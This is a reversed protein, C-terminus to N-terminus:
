DVNGAAIAMRDDRIISAPDIARALIAASTPDMRDFADLRDGIDPGSLRGGVARALDVRLRSVCNEVTM